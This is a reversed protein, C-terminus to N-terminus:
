GPTSIQVSPASNTAAAPYLAEVGAIDDASLTRLEQSCRSYSPYMTAGNLESHRLGLAHGFEHAAIDEIYAGSSCEASGTFFEWGGDWFIIDADLLRGNSTWYYTTAITSGNSTNRFFVVNRGDYGAATENTRGAYTFRFNASTQTDWTSAGARIASEAADDPVDANAPNVYYPVQNSSWSAGTLYAEGTVTLGAIAAAFGILVASRRHM